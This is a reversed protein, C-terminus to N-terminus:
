RKLRFAVSGLHAGYFSTVLLHHIGTDSTLGALDGAGVNLIGGTRSIGANVDASLEVCVSNADTVPNGAACLKWPTECGTGDTTWAIEYTKGGSLDVEACPAPTV